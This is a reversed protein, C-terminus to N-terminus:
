TFVCGKSVCHRLYWERSPTYLTHAPGEGGCDCLRHALSQVSIFSRDKNSPVPHRARFQWGVCEGVIKGWACLVVKFLAMYRGRRSQSSISQDKVAYLREVSISGHPLSRGALRCGFCRTWCNFRRECCTYPRAIDDIPVRKWSCSARRIPSRVARVRTRLALSM